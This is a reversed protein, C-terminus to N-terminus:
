TLFRVLSLTETNYSQLQTSIILYLKYIVPPFAVAFAILALFFPLHYEFFSVKFLSTYIFAKIKPFILSYASVEVTHHSTKSINGEVDCYNVKFEIECYNTHRSTVKKYSRDLKIMRDDREPYRKKIAASNLLEKAAKPMANLYTRKYFVERFGRDGISLFSQIYRLLWYLFLVLLAYYVVVPNQITVDNGLIKINEFKEIEIGAVKAFILLFSISILNRRQRKFNSDLEM